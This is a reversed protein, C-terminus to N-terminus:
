DEESPTVNDTGPHTEMSPQSTDSTSYVRLGSHDPICFRTKPLTVDYGRRLLLEMASAEDPYGKESM